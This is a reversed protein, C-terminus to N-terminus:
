KTSVRHLTLQKTGQPGQEMTKGIKRARGVRGMNHDARRYPYAERADAVCWTPGAARSGQAVAPGPPMEPKVVESTSM